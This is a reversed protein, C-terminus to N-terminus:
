EWPGIQRLPSSHRLEFCGAFRNCPPNWREILDACEATRDEARGENFRVHIHTARGMRMRDVVSSEWELDSVDATSGVLLPFHLGPKIERAFIYNAARPGFATGIPCLKYGYTKGSAGAWVHLEQGLLTQEPRM